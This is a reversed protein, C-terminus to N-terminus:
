AEVDNKKPLHAILIDFNQDIKGKYERRRLQDCVLFVIYRTLTSPALLNDFFFPLSPQYSPGIHYKQSKFQCAKWWLNGFTLEIYNNSRTDYSTIIMYTLRPLLSYPFLSPCCRFSVCKHSVITHPCLLLSLAPANWLISCLPVVCMTCGMTCFCTNISCLYL